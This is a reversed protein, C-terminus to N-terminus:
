LMKKAMLSGSKRCFDAAGGLVFDVDFLGMTVLGALEM